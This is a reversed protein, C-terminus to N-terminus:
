WVLYIRRRSFLGMLGAAIVLGAYRLWSTALLGMQRPTQMLRWCPRRWGFSVKRMSYLVSRNFLLSSATKSIRALLRGSMSMLGGGVVGLLWGESEDEM